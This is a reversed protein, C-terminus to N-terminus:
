HIRQQGKKTVEAMSLLRVLTKPLVGALLTIIRHCRDCILIFNVPNQIAEHYTDFSTKPKGNPYSLHHLALARGNTQKLTGCCFCETGVAKRANEGLRMAYARSNRRQQQIHTARYKRYYERWRAPNAERWERVQNRTKKREADTRSSSM